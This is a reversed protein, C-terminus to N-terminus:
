PKPAWWSTRAGRRRDRQVTFLFLFASSVRCFSAVHGERERRRADNCRSATQRRRRQQRQRSCLLYIWEANRLRSLSLPRACSATGPHHHPPSPTPPNWCLSILHCLARLHQRPALQILRHRERSPQKWELTRSCARKLKSLVVCKNFRGGHSVGQQTCVCM